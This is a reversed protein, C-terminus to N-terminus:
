FDVFSNQRSVVFSWSVVVVLREDLFFQRCRVRTLGDTIGWFRGRVRFHQDNGGSESGFDVGAFEESVGIGAVDIFGHRSLSQFWQHSQIDM